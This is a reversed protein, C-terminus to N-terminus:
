IKQLKELVTMSYPLQITKQRSHQGKRVIVFTKPCDFYDALLKCVALNAEGDQAKACVSLELGRESSKLVANKSAGPKVWVLLEIYEHLVKFFSM